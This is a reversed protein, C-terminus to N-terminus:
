ESHQRSHDSKPSVQFDDAWEDLCLAAQEAVAQQTKEYLRLLREGEQTLTSGGGHAGGVRRCVLAHGLRREVKRIKEWAYRYSMGLARSAEQLSGADRIRAVLQAVGGGFVSEGELELWVKTGVTLRSATLFDAQRSLCTVIALRQARSLGVRSLVEKWRDKQRDADVRIDAAQNLQQWDSRLTTQDPRAALFIRVDGEKRLVLGNSEVVIHDFNAHAHTVFNWLPALATFYNPPKNEKIRGHGHKAAVSRPLIECLRQALTTKGVGRGAGSICWVVAM